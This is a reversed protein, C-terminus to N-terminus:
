VIKMTEFTIELYTAGDKPFGSWMRTDWFEMKMMTVLEHIDWIYGTHIVLTLAIKKLM